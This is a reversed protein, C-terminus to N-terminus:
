RAFRGHLAEKVALKFFRVRAVRADLTVVLPASGDDAGVGAQGDYQRAFARGWEAEALECGAANMGAFAGQMVCLVDSAAKFGEM